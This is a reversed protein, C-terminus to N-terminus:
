RIIVGACPMGITTLRELFAPIGDADCCAYIAFQPADVTKRQTAQSAYYRRQVCFCRVVPQFARRSRKIEGARYRRHRFLKRRESHTVTDSAHNQYTRAHRRTIAEFEPLVSVDTINFSSLSLRHAGALPLTAHQSDNVTSRAVYGGM